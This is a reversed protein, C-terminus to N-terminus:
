GVGAFAAFAALVDRDRPYSLLANAAAVFEWRVEDVEANAEFEGAIVRMEWYRVHKPRGKGDLYDIGPLEHGLACRLGTEEHVERRACHAEDPDTPELKGKPFSWDRLHPRHVVLVQVAGEPDVRWVVGGAARVVEVM